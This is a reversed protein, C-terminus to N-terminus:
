EGYKMEMTMPKGFITTYISGSTFMLYVGKVAGLHVYLLQIVHSWDITYKWENAYKRKDVTKNLGGDTTEADVENLVGTCEPVPQIHKM